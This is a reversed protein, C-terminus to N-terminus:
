IGEKGESARDKQLADPQNFPMQHEPLVWLWGGRKKGKPQYSKIALAERAARFPKSQGIMQDKGLLGADRAETQIDTVKQPGGALVEQLFEM